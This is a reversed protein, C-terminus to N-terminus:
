RLQLTGSHDFPITKILGSALRVKGLVRYQPASRDRSALLRLVAGAANAKVDVDFETDGLAPVNFDRESEGSAFKEGAVQVEYTIGRVPLARDNPNQVRLRVRLEQSLLDGRLLSVQVVQLTPPELRLTSCGVLLVCLALGPLLRNWM